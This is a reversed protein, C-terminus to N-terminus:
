RNSLAHEPLGLKALWHRAASSDPRLALCTKFARAAREDQGLGALAAGLTLHAEPLDFRLGLADAAAEAAAEFRGQGLLAQALGAHARPSDDDWAILSRFAREADEWRKQNLYVRGIAYRIGQAPKESQEAALLGALGEEIRGEALFLNAELVRAAPRDGGRHLVGRVIRRCDEMRGTEYCCQALYVQYTIEEPFEHAAEEMLPLAAAANGQGLYVRALSFAQHVRVQRLRDRTEPAPPELYGLAVMQDMLATSDWADPLAEQPHMGSEGATREWSPIRDPFAPKELAEALVRGQMDQGAPLGFLALVTPAVDLLTAGYILEDRRVGPGAVCVIGHSRHWDMPAEHQVSTPAAGRRRDSHFGHDSVVMFLTDPGALDVMRGLMADAFCYAGNVVNRYLEFDREPVSEMRPPHYPMFAHGAHDPLDFFVALFDWPQREMLWTAAAQVSINEALIKALAMPRKDAKQDIEELRPIFPLLDDGTLDGPQVRLEALEAAFHAPHIADAPMPAAFGGSFAFANSVIAGKVPEAPHSAFWNVVLSRLGSQSLINWLAKVKRSTSTVPRIGGSVPDPEAFGHIGHLDATKGTAISTWLLPSMPPDLTAINGMAGREVLKRLNPMSGGDLLPHIIKWDAADWGILVVRRALREPM